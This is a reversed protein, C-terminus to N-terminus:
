LMNFNMSHPPYQFPQLNTGAIPLHVNVAQAHLSNNNMQIPLVAPYVINTPAPQMNATIQAPALQTAMMGYQIPPQAAALGQM